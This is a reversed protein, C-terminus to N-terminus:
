PFPLRLQTAGAGAELGSASVGALRVPRRGVETRDLLRAVVARVVGEACTPAPLSEARSVTTFDEYRVKVSWTRAAQGARELSECVEAVLPWLAALVEERARLDVEFTRESGRSKREWGAEVPRRDVGWALSWLWAGTRGLDAELARLPRAAVDGVRVLGLAHLRRATAPGVGWLKEVPLPHLFALVREPPVVTLGAPKRFGSAIKAVFKNPAVGCSASLRLEERVAAQVQRAVEAALPEGRHNVTVDLYSEDISLPEIRDTWRQLIAHLQRSVERYLGHRGRVFVLEPCLRRAMASSMASRVGFARAEYSAAAVVGRGDPSGGVVVPRGRLSPDERQEVSAFFADMDVHIIKRPPGPEPAPREDPPADALLLPLDGPETV